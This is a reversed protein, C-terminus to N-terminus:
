VMPLIEEVLSFYVRGMQTYQLKQARYPLLTKPRQLFTNEFGRVMQPIMPTRNENIGEIM